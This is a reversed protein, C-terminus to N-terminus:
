LGGNDDEKEKLSKEQIKVINRRWRVLYVVVVLQGIKIGLDLLIDAIDLWEQSITILSLLLVAVKPSTVIQDTVLKITDIM